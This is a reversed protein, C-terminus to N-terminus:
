TMNVVIALNQKSELRTMPYNRTLVECNVVKKREFMAQKISIRFCYTLLIFELLVTIFFTSWM